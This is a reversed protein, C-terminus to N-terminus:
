LYQPQRVASCAVMGPPIGTEPAHMHLIFLVYSNDKSWQRTVDFFEGSFKGPADM